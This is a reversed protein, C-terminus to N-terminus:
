SKGVNAGSLLPWKEALHLALRRLPV